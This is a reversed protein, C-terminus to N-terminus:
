DTPIIIGLIHSFLFHELGGVLSVHEHVMRLHFISRWCGGVDLWSQNRSRDCSKVWFDVPNPHTECRFAPMGRYLLCRCILTCSHFVLVDVFVLLGDLNGDTTDFKSAHHQTLLDWIHWSIMGAFDWLTDIKYRALVLGASDITIGLGSILWSVQVCWENLGCWCTCDLDIEPDNGQSETIYAM